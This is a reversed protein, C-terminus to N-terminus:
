ICLVCVVNQSVEDDDDDTNTSSLLSAPVTGVKILEAEM